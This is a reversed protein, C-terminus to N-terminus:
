NALYRYLFTVMQGRTCDADPSFLNSGTGVTIGEAVAWTVAAAYYADSAVDGFPNSGTVAPTGEFRYLFTAMQSRTCIADPAFSNNGVGNTIGNEVAWLVADYYYADAPIDTFTMESRKPAPSGAARWLFTAMQARTCSTDPSFTTESTGKTIGQKVAWTVADAYYADAPVDVFGTSPQNGSKEFTVIVKDSSKLGTIKEAAGQSKGNVTVDKIQYGKDPTITLTSGSLKVTGGAGVSVTPQSSSSSGGGGGGGGSSPQTTTFNKANNASSYISDTYTTGNATRVYGTYYYTAGPTLDNVTVSIKGDTPVVAAKFDQSAGGVTRIRIGAEMVHFGEGTWSASLTVSNKSIGSAEGTTVVPTGTQTPVVEITWSITTVGDPAYATVTATGEKKGIVNSGSVTAVATDNSELKVAASPTITYSLTQSSGVSVTVSKSQQTFTYTVTDDVKFDALLTFTTTQPALTM